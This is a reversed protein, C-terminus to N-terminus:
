GVSVEQCGNNGFMNRNMRPLLAPKRCFWGAHGFFNLMSATLFDFLGRRM